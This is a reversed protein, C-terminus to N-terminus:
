VVNGELMTVVGTLLVPLLVTYVAKVCKIRLSYVVCFHMTM